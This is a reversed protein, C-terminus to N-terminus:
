TRFEKGWSDFFLIQQPRKNETMAVKQGYGGYQELTLHSRTSLLGLKLPKHLFCCPNREQTSVDRADQYSFGTLRTKKNLNNGKTDVGRDFTILQTHVSVTQVTGQM